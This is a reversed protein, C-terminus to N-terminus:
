MRSVDALYKRLMNLMALVAIRRNGDRGKDLSLHRHPYAGSADAIAM